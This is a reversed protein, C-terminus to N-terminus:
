QSLWHLLFFNVFWESVAHLIRFNLNHFNFIRSPSSLLQLHMVLFINKNNDRFYLNENFSMYNKSILLRKKDSGPLDPTRDIPGSTEVWQPVKHQSLQHPEPQHLYWICTAGDPPWIQLQHLHCWRTALFSVLAIHDGSKIWTVSDIGPDTTGRTINTSFTLGSVLM